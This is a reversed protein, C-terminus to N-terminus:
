TDKTSFIKRLQPLERRILLPLNERLSRVIRTLTIGCPERFFCGVGYSFRHFSISQSARDFIGNGVHRFLSRLFYFNDNIIFIQIM